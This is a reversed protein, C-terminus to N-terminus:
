DLVEILMFFNATTDTGLNNLTVSVTGSGAVVNMVTINSGNGAGLGGWADARVTSGNAVLNNNVVLTTATGTTLTVGTVTIKAVRANTVWGSAGSATAVNYSVGKGAGTLTLDGTATIADVDSLSGNNFSINGTFATLNIDGSSTVIGASALNLAGALTVENVDILSGNNFSINGTFSTLNIDGSTTVIGASALNIAGGVTLAGVGTMDGNDAVIVQSNQVLKGTIGDFRVVANDTASGPGDVDGAAPFIGGTFQGTTPNVQVVTPLLTYVGTTGTGQLVCLTNQQIAVSTDQDLFVVASTM